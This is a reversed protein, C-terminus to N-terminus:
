ANLIREQHSISEQHIAKFMKLVFEESLGKKEGELIMKGLIENWRNNQLIAVNANKKVQGIEDAVKMRKGLLDLLNADLVDINARLKSMKQSYEDTKDDTKRVRLDKFIQKLTDPTVQQAADSWANDPDTHTEIIMGDYNLDLAEQTVELIMKRDGTIHSPDIILPLDPFKNQLEIAIQWEPINRYKTKEYTSFGRHIVGLKEIGAMHLREVGGLWLSLDPNVPNKILVIKDTGKLTDAIEQVAFPNATTRAGVWLVDIDHELALKCHAATAVETGMLLGTEAKAKQLWKLGIEGVGEFGGPRTRPKWIGARFISVDSNKLEHAIKLVQEETEASCPGAIVLPHDLKFAELWNRMEKKNEM